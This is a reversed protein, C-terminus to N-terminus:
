AGKHSSTSNQRESSSPTGVGVPCTQKSCPASITRKQTFYDIVNIFYNETLTYIISQAEKIKKFKYFRNIHQIKKLSKIISFQLCVWFYLSSYLASGQVWWGTDVTLLMKDTKYWSCLWTKKRSYKLAPELCWIMSYTRTLRLNQIIKGLRKSSMHLAKLWFGKPLLFSNNANGSDRFSFHSTVRAEHTLNLVWFEWSNSSGILCSILFM